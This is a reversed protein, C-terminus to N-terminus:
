TSLGCRWTFANEFTRSGKSIRQQAKRWEKLKPYRASVYGDSDTMRHYQGWHPIGKHRYMAEEMRHLIEVNGIVGKFADLEIICNMPHQEFALFAESPACFRLSLCGGFPVGGVDMATKVIGICEDVYDIYGQTLGNFAVEMSMSRFATFSDDGDYGDMIQFGKAQVSGSPRSNDLLANELLGVLQPSGQTTAFNVVTSIFQGLNGGSIAIGALLPILSTLLPSLNPNDAVAGLFSSLIAAFETVSAAVGAYFSLLLGVATPPPPAGPVAVVTRTTIWCPPDDGSPNIVVELYSPPPPAAGAAKALVFPDLQTTFIPGPTGGAGLLMPKVRSWVDKRTFQALGFQTRVLIVLSYIIGMSGVALVAANFVEDDQEVIVDRGLAARVKKPDTISRGKGREIWYQQGGPGVLHIAQVAECIPPLLFDGGHVGTSVVGALTQGGSNGQTILALSPLKADLRTCLDHVTVGAEVHYFDTTGNRMAAGTANLAAPIISTIEANLQHTEVIVDDTMAVDAFAWHSGCARVHLKKAEAAKVLAVIEEVSTPRLIQLPQVSMNGAWNTWTEYRGEGAGPWHQLKANAGVAFADVRGGSRSVAAVGEAPLNGGLSSPASWSGSQFRWRWLAADNGIAFVDIRGNPSRAAAPLGGTLHGGLPTENWTLGEDLSTWAHLQGDGAVGFVDLRTGSGVAAVASTALNAGIDRMSWNGAPGRAYYMLNRAGDVAFANLKTATWAAGPVGGPLNASPVNSQTFTVGDWAWHNLAAAGSIAFVDVIAAASVTACPGGAPMQGGRDVNDTWVGAALSWHRLSNDGALAFVDLLGAGRSVASVAGAPLQGARPEWVWSGHQQSFHWLMNDGLGIAFVDMSEGDQSAVAPRGVAQAGLGTPNGALIGGISELAM